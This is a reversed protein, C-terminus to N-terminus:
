RDDDSVGDDSVRTQMRLAVRLARMARSSRLKAAMVTLGLRPAMSRFSFGFVHHLLWPERTADPLSALANGVDLSDVSPVGLVAAAMAPGRDVAADVGHDVERGSERDIGPAGRLDPRARAARRSRASVHRAIGFVWPRVPLPPTYTRRSRHLELFMDQVLDSAGGHDRHTKLFYRRVDDILMAYLQEFAGLDGAQYAVMLEILQAEEEHEPVSSRRM